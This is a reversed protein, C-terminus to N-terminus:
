AHKLVIGELINAVDECKDAAEELHDYVDKWKILTTPDDKFDDFLEGLANRYIRDIQNEMRNIEICHEKIHDWDKVKLEKFAKQIVKTTDHLARALHLSDKTPEEIRFVIMRDVAGWILDVVDDIRAGLSHLDERDIPTIFTQNLKRMIDHTLLDGEQEIEYIEKVKNEADEFNEVLEVLRLAANNANEAAKDFYEFFDIKRPFIGM